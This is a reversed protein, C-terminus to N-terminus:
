TLMPASSAGIYKGDFKAGSAFFANGFDAFRKM